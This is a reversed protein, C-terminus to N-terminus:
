RREAGPVLREIDATRRATRRPALGPVLQLPRASVVIEARGASEERSARVDGDVALGRAGRELKSLASATGATESGNVARLDGMGANAASRVATTTCLVLVGQVILFLVAFYIPMLLATEAVTSGREDRCM